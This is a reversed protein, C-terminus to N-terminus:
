DNLGDLMVREISVTKTADDWTVVDDMPEHTHRTPTLTRNDVIVPAVDVDHPIGDVVVQPVGITVAVNRVYPLSPYITVFGAGTQADIGLSGVDVTSSKLSEWLANETMPKGLRAKARQLLLAAFGAVHPTAMSTGSLILYGGNPATSLISVGPACVDVEPNTNSFTAVKLDTDVAGVGVVEPYYGPYAKAGPGENGVAVIVIVNKSVAYQVAEHLAPVDDPGGLSMSIIDCGDDAADRIAQVIVEYSSEGGGGFVRYDRLKVDPAVGKLTGRAAISGAVHTGHALYSAKAVGDKVYDRQAIVSGFLDTHTDDIGSDIVGVVIGTGMFGGRWLAPAGMLRIGKSIGDRIDNPLSAYATGVAHDIMRIM